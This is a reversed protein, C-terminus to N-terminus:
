NELITTLSTENFTKKAVDRGSDIKRSESPSDIHTMTHSEDEDILSTNSEVNEM